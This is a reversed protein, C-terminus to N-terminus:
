RQDARFRKHTHEYNDTSLVPPVPHFSRLNEHNKELVAPASRGNTQKKMDLQVSINAQSLDVGSSLLANTLSSLLGQSYTSSVSAEGNETKLKDVDASNIPFPCPEMYSGGRLFPSKALQVFQEADPFSEQHIQTPVTEFMPPQLPINLPLGQNPASQLIDTSKHLSDGTLDLQVSNEANSLSTPCPLVNDEQGSLLSEFHSQDVFSEVPGSNSKWPTLKTPEPSWGECSGEYMQLKEHLFQIYQIVELLFSAKDRKSDNEPILDRLIQFRENIKLRRRQETESHKSRHSNGKQDVRRRETPSFSDPSEEDEVRSNVTRVM